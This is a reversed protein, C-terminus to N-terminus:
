ITVISCLMCFVVAIGALMVANESIDEWTSAGRYRGVDHGTGLIHCYVHTEGM